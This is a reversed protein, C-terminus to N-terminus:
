KGDYMEVIQAACSDDWANDVHRYNEAMSFGEYFANRVEERVAESYGAVLKEIHAEM